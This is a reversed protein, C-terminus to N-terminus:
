DTLKKWSVPKKTEMYTKVMARIGDKGQYRVGSCSRACILDVVDNLFQTKSYDQNNSWWWKKVNNLTNNSIEVVLSELVNAM